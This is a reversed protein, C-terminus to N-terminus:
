PATTLSLVGAPVRPVAMINGLIGVDRGILPVNDASLTMPALESVKLSNDNFAVDVTSLPSDFFLVGFASVADAVLNVSGDANSPGITAFLRRGDGDVMTVLADFSDPTLAFKPMARGAAARLLRVVGRVGAGLTGVDTFDLAAGSPTAADEVAAVFLEESVYAAQELMDDVAVQVAGPSSTRILEYSIDLYGKYWEGTFDSVDTTIARSAPPAKEVPNATVQSHQTKTPLRHVIGTEPFPIRMVHSIFYRYDDFYDIIERSTRGTDTLGPNGPSIMDARQSIKSRDEGYARVMSAFVQRVQLPSPAPAAPKALDRIREEIQDIRSHIRAPDEPAERTEITTEEAVPDEETRTATVTASEFAPLPTLSLEHMKARTYILGHPGNKTETPEFGISLGRLADAQLLTIAHPGRNTGRYIDASIRLGEPADEAATILGVMEDRNHGWLVPRGVAAPADISGRQFEETIGGYQIRQGWPVAVGDITIYDGDVATRTRMDRVELTRQLM